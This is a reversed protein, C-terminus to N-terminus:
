QLSDLLRSCHHLRAQLSGQSLSSSGSVTPMRWSQEHLQSLADSARLSLLVEKVSPWRGLFRLASLAAAAVEHCRDQCAVDLLRQPARAWVLTRGGQEWHRHSLNALGLAANRRTSPRGDKLLGVLLTLLGPGGGGRYAVNGAAVCASARVGAEQDRLRELLVEVLPASPETEDRGLLGSALSCAKARVRAERHNLAQVLPQYDGRPGALAEQLFPLCQAWARSLQALLSLLHCLAATDPAQLLRALLLGAEWGTWCGELQAVCSPGRASLHCLLGLPLEPDPLTRSSLIVQVLNHVVERQLFALVIDSLVAQDVEVAFPFCLLQCVQVVVCPVWQLDPDGDRQSCHVRKDLQNLFPESLLYSLTAVIVSSSSSLLAICQRPAAIFVQTALSLFVLLGSPSLASWDPAPMSRGPRPTQGEMVPHDLPLRLARAVQGWVAMWVESDLLVPAEGEATFHLLLLLIGDLTGLEVPLLVSLQFSSTLMILATQLFEVLHLEISYGRSILEVLLLAAANILDPSQLLISTIIGTARELAEPVHDLQIVTLSLLYLAVELMQTQSPDCSCMQNELLPLLSQLAEDVIFQCADSSIYCCSYLVKMTNLALSQDHIGQLFGKREANHGQLLRGSIYQAVKHKAEQCHCRGPPVHCLASLAATYLMLKCGQFMGVQLGELQPFRQCVQLVTSLVPENEHLLSEYFSCSTQDMTQCLQIFCTLTQDKLKEWEKQTVLEPFLALFEEATQELVQVGHSSDSTFDAAFYSSLVVLLESLLPARWPQQKFRPSRVMSMILQLLTQPLQLRCCIACLQEHDCRTTLLNTIVRLTPQLRRAGQETGQLVQSSSEGLRTQLRQLFTQDGLLALPASLELTSPDTAEALHQWDEDSDGEGEENGRSLSSGTAARTAGQVQAFELEYDRSIPHLSQKIKSHQVANESSPSSSPCEDCTLRIDIAPAPVSPDLALAPPLQGTDKKVKRRGKELMQQRARRLIRSHGSRPALARTQQEKLQQEKHSPKQTLPKEGAWAGAEELVIVRDAVFPHHLLAPWSLRQRPDKNLLGQLFDKFDPSIAKPWRVPDRVIISVLQFISSTYFPPTGVFLEYLICGLSWLDATHDYPREEVLEPCMYLPTGKISTLVLTQLSMARAFGFDCLKVVGGKGILVNQPKLDRHLVRHSHLYHLASVLQTAIEQVQDEPLSGDDELIQFLEGEAYETVVVVETDTQFSDLMQVINPHRLLCMIEMERQLSRLEKDSRGLKPIFKLAVVQGSFKRRGKYVRGFSGEGIVDLVHYDNLGMRPSQGEM